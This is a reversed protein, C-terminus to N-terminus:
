TIEIVFFYIYERDVTLGKLIIGNIEGSVVPAGGRRTRLRQCPFIGQIWKSHKRSPALVLKFDNTFRHFTIACFFSFAASTTWNSSRGSSNSKAVNEKNSTQSSHANLETQERRWSRAASSESHLGSPPVRQEESSCSSPYSSTSFFWM